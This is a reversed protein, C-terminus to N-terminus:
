SDIITPIRLISLMIHRVFCLLVSALATFMYLLPRVDIESACLGCFAMGGVCFPPLSGFGGHLVRLWIEAIYYSTCYLPLPKFISLNVRAVGSTATHGRPISYQQAVYKQM